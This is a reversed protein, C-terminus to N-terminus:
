GVVSHSSEKGLLLEPKFIIGMELMVGVMLCSAKPHYFMQRESSNTM